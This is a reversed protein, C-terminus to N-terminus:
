FGLGEGTLQELWREKTYENKDNSLIYDRKLLDIMQMSIQILYLQCWRPYVQKLYIWADNLTIFTLTRSNSYEFLEFSNLQYFFLGNLCNSGVKISGGECGIELLTRKM